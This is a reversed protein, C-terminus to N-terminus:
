SFGPQVENKCYGAVQRHQEMKKKSGEQVFIILEFVSTLYMKIVLDRGVYYYTLQVRM